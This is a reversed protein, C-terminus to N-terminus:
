VAPSAQRVAKESLRQLCKRKTLAVLACKHIEGKIDDSVREGTCEGAQLTEVDGAKHLDAQHCLCILALSNDM